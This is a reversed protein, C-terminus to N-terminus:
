YCWLSHVFPSVMCAPQRYHVYANGILALEAVTRSQGIASV